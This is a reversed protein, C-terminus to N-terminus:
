KECLACAIHRERLLRSFHRMIDLELMYDYWRRMRFRLGKAM